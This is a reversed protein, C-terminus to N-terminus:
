SSRRRGRCGARVLQWRVHLDDAPEAVAHEGDRAAAVGAVGLRVDALREVAAHRPGGHVAGREQLFAVPAAAVDRAARGAAEDPVLDHADAPAAAALRGQGELLDLGHGRGRVQARRDNALGPGAGRPRPDLVHAVRVAEGVLAVRRAAAGRPRQGGEIRLCAGDADHGRGERLVALAVRGDDGALEEAGGGLPLEERERDARLDLAERDRPDLDIGGGRLDAGGRPRAAAELVQLDGPVVQFLAGARAGDKGVGAAQPRIGDEARRLVAEREHEVHERHRRLAEEHAAGALVPGRV